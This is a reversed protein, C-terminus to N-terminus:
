GNCVNGISLTSHSHLPWRNYRNADIVNPALLEGSAANDREAAFSFCITISEGKTRESADALTSGVSLQSM